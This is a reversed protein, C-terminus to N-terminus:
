AKLRHNGADYLCRPGINVQYFKGFAEVEIVSQDNIEDPLYAYAVTSAIRHGYGASTTYGQLVGQSFVPEGGHLPIFDPHYLTVLKKDCHQNSLAM